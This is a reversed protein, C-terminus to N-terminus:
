LNLKDYSIVNILHKLSTYKTMHIDFNSKHHFGKNCIDCIYTEEGTHIRMHIKVSSSNSVAKPSPTASRDLAGIAVCVTEPEFRSCPRCREVPLDRHRSLPATMGWGPYPCFGVLSSLLM